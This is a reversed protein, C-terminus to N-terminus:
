SSHNRRLLEDKVVQFPPIPSYPCGSNVLSLALSCLRCSWGLPTLPHYEYVLSIRRCNYFGRLSRHQLNLFHYHECWAVAPVYSCGDPKSGARVSLPWCSWM